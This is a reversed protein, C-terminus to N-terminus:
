VQLHTCTCTRAWPRVHAPMPLIALRKMLHKLVPTNRSLRNLFVASLFLGPAGVAGVSLLMCTRFTGSHQPGCSEVAAQKRTPADAGAPYSRRGLLGGGGGAGAASAAASPTKSASKQPKKCASSSSRAFQLATPPTNYGACQLARFLRTDSRLWVV